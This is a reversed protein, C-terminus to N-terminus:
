NIAAPHQTTNILWPTTSSAFWFQILSTWRTVLFIVIPHWTTNLTKTAIMPVGLQALGIKAFLAPLIYM